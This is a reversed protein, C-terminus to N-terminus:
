SIFGEELELGPFGLRNGLVKAVKSALADPARKFTRIRDKHKHKRLRTLLAVYEPPTANSGTPTGM